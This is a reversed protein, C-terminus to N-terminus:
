TVPGDRRPGTPTEDAEDDDAQASTGSPVKFGLFGCPAKRRTQGLHRNPPRHEHAREKTGRSAATPQSWLGRSSGTEFLM